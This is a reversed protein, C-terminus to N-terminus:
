RLLNFTGNLYFRSGELGHGEITYVYVGLPAEKGNYTGDWGANVDHTEFLLQGWRNFIRFTFQLDKNDSLKYLSLSEAKFVENHGDANPTFANPVFIRAPLIACRINSVSSDRSHLAANEVAIVRYCTAADIDYYVSDDVYQSDAAPVYAVTRFQKNDDQLQVAYEKEGADWLNYKNWSLYRKDNKVTANLLISTGKNSWPSINGCDDIVRVRYFYSTNNVDVSSDIIFNNRTIRYSPQLGVGVTYKDIVYMRVNMQESPQWATYTYKNDVVTTRYMELPAHQYIYDPRLSDLNSFSYFKGNPHNAKIYYTYMKDCLQSDIYMSDRAGLTAHLSFAGKDVKRYIEYNAVNAWGNYLNWKLKNSIGNNATVDLHITCHTTSPLSKLGCDDEVAVNYCYSRAFVNVLNSKVMTDELSTRTFVQAPTLYNSQTLLYKAFNEPEEAKNYYIEVNNDPTVTVFYIEPTVPPIDDPTEIISSFTDKCGNQNYVTLVVKHKGPTKFHYAPNKLNSTDKLTNGDDFKWHYRVIPVDSTGTYTFSITDNACARKHSATFKSDPKKNVYFASDKVLQVLCGTKTRVTLTIKKWGTENFIYVPNKNTDDVIGDNNFDWEYTDAFKTNNVMQVPQETCVTKAQTTFSIVPKRYLIISDRFVSICGTTDRSYLTPYFVNKELSYDFFKYTHPRMVNSDIDSNDGYVMYYDNIFQSKNTFNVTVSECGQKKDAEFLPVPGYVKIFNRITISDTCGYKRIATLKVDFGAPNNNEYTHMPTSDATLITKGDGFDWFYMDANKSTSKFQVLVPACNFSTDDATFDAVPAKICITKIISDECNIDARKGTILKVQYCGNETFRFTPNRDTASPTIIVNAAPEVTWKFYNPSLTSTNTVKIDQDKCGDDQMTFNAKTGNCIFNRKTVVTSCGLANTVTLTITYCGNKTVSATPAAATSDSFVVGDAPVSRWLYTLASGTPKNVRIVSSLSVTLPLCGSRKPSIFDALIGNVTFAKEYTKSVTCNPDTGGSITYEVDYVGPIRFLVNPTRGTARVIINASDRNKFVWTHTFGAIGTKPSSHNTPRIRQGICIETVPFIINPEPVLVRISANRTVVATCGGSNITTLKVNYVGESYFTYNLNPKTSPTFPSGFVHQKLTDTIEWTYTNTGSIPASNLALLNVVAPLQCQTPNDISFDARAPGVIFLESLVVTDNCPSGAYNLGIKIDFNGAEGFTINYNNNAAARSTLLKNSKIGKFTYLQHPPINIAARQTECYNNQTVSYYRRILDVKTYKVICGNKMKISFTVSLPTNYSTYTVAPPTLGKFASPSGGPFEWLYETINTAKPDVFPDFTARITNRNKDEVLRACFNLAYEDHVFIYNTKTLVKSCGQNDFVKLTVSKYGPSTFTHSIVKGTDALLSGDIYWERRSVNKTSDTLTAIAPKSCVQTDATGFSPTSVTTFNLYANKVKTCVTGNPTRVELTVNYIGPNTFTELM